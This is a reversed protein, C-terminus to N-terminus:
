GNEARGVWCRTWMAVQAVTYAIHAISARPMAGMSLVSVSVWMSEVSWAVPWGNRMVVVSPCVRQSGALATTNRPAPAPGRGVGATVVEVEEVGHRRRDCPGGGVGVDGALDEVWSLGLGESGSQESCQQALASSLWHDALSHGGLYPGPRFM